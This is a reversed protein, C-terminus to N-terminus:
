INKSNNFKHFEMFKDTYFLLIFILYNYIVFYYKVLLLKSIPINIRVINM